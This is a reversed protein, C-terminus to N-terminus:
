SVWGGIDHLRFVAGFIGVFRTRTGYGSTPVLVFGWRVDVLFPGMVQGHAVGAWPFCFQDKLCPRVVFGADRLIAEGGPYTEFVKANVPLVFVNKTGLERAITTAAYMESRKVSAFASAYGAAAFMAAAIVM